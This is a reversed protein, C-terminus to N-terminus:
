VISEVSDGYTGPLMFRFPKITQGGSDKYVSRMSGGNDQIYSELLEYPDQFYMGKVPNQVQVPISISDFLPPKVVAIGLDASKRSTRDSGPWDLTQVENGKIELVRGDTQSFVSTVKVGALYGITRNTDQALYTDGEYRPSPLGLSTGVPLPEIVHESGDEPIIVCDFQFPAGARGDRLATNNLAVLLTGEKVSFVGYVNPVQESSGTEGAVGARTVFLFGGGGLARIKEGHTFEIEYVDEPCEQPRALANGWADTELPASVGESLTTSDTDPKIDAITPIDETPIKSMLIIRRYLNVGTLNISIM